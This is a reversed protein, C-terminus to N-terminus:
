VLPAASATVMIRQQYNMIRHMWCSCSCTQEDMDGLRDMPMSQPPATSHIVQYDYDGTTNNNKTTM